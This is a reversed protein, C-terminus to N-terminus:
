KWHVGVALLRRTIGVCRQAAQELHLLGARAPHSLPMLDLSQELNNLILTLQENYDHATIAALHALEKAQEM